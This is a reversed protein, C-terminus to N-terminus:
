LHELLWDVLTGLVDRRVEHSPLGDYRFARGDLDELFLHNANPFRVVSVDQNGAELLAAKLTDAQEPTIQTDTEGHLLLVPARVQRIVPLPDYSYAARFWPDEASRRESSRASRRRMDEAEQRSLTPTKDIVAEMASESVRRLTYAPAALLALAAIASDDAAVMPGIVGGESHGILGIKAGDVGPRSRLYRVASRVDEALDTSTAGPSGFDSSGVGRDDLRLVAIGVSGLTDAIQRFPRYEGVHGMYEDRDQPGSGTITVVAPVPLEANLPLTLTGVLTLGASTTVSVEAASYAAGRPAGYPESEGCGLFLLVSPLGIVTGRRPGLTM